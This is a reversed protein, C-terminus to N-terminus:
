FWSFWPKRKQTAVVRSLEQELRAANPFKHEDQRFAHTHFRHSGGKGSFQHKKHLLEHYMVYDMLVPHELLITSISVTDTGLDYHGLKTIGKGIVLNPQDMMGNFFQENLRKFSEELVPHSKTKAITRPVGKMFYAYLDMQMTHRRDKFLRALLHQVLGIQIDRSVTRWHKSLNLTIRKQFRNLSIRANYGKFKGSYQVAAAYAYPKEPYLMNFAERVIDM